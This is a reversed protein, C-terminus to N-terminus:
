RARSYRRPGRHGIPRAERSTRGRHASAVWVEDEHLAVGRYASLALAVLVGGTVVLFEGAFWRVRRRWRRGGTM